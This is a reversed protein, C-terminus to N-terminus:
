GSEAKFNEKKTHRKEQGPIDIHRDRPRKRDSQTLVSTQRARWRLLEWSVWDLAVGDSERLLLIPAVRVDKLKVAQSSGAFGMRLFFCFGQGVICWVGPLSVWKSQGAVEGDRGDM